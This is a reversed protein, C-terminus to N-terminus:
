KSQFFCPVKPSKPKLLQTVTSPQFAKKESSVVDSNTSGYFSIKKERFLNIKKSGFM